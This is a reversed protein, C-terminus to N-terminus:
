RIRIELTVGVGNIDRPQIRSDDQRLYYADATWRENISKKIGSAFRNRTWGHFVSFYFIEDWAFLWTASRSSGVMYDVRPRNLYIWFDNGGGIAGMLRNRDAVTWRRWNERWTASLMPVQFDGRRDAANIYALYYYSPSIELHSGAWFKVDAGTLYTAPNSYATSFRGQSVWSLDVAKSIRASVDLEDWNQFDPLEVAQAKSTLRASLLLLALCLGQRVWGVVDVIGKRSRSPWRM